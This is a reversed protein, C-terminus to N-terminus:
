QINALTIDEVSYKGRENNKFFLKNLFMKLPVNKYTRPLIGRRAGERHTKYHEAVIWPQHVLTESTGMKLKSTGTLM